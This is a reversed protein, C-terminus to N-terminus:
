AGQGQAVMSWNPGRRAKIAEFDFREIAEQNEPLNLEWLPFFDEGVDLGEQCGGHVYLFEHCADVGAARLDEAIQALDDLRIMPVGMSAVRGAM